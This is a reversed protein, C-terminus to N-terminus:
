NAYVPVADAFQICYLSSDVKKFVAGQRTEMFKNANIEHKFLWTNGNYRVLISDMVQAEKTTWLKGRGSKRLQRMSKIHKKDQSTLGKQKTNTKM